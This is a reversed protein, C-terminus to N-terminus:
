RLEGEMYPRIARFEPRAKGDKDNILNTVATFVDQPPVGYFEALHLFVAAAGLLQEERQWNQLTNLVGLTCTAVRNPAALHMLDRNFEKAM